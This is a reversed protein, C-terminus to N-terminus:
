KGNVHYVMVRLPNDISKQVLSFFISRDFKKKSVDLDSPLFLLRDFFRNNPLNLGIGM